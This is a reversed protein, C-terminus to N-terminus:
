KDQSIVTNFWNLIIFHRMVISIGSYFLRIFITIRSYFLRMFIPIDSYFPKIPILLRNQLLKIFVNLM